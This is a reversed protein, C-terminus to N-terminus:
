RRRRVRLRVEPPDVPAFTADLRWTLWGFCVEGQRASFAVRTRSIYCGHTLDAMAGRTRCRAQVADQMRLWEISLALVTSNVRQTQATTMSRISRQTM